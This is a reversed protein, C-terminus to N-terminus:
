KEERKQSGPLRTARELQVLRMICEDWTESEKKIEDLNSKTEPSVKLNARSM